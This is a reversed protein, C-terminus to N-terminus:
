AQQQESQQPVVSNGIEGEKTETNDTRGLGRFLILAIFLIFILVLILILTFGKRM